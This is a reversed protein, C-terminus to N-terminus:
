ADTVFQARLGRLSADFQDGLWGDFFLGAWKTRLGKLAGKQTWTVLVSDEEMPVFRLTGRSVQSGDPLSLVYVLEEGDKAEVLELRGHGVQEGEWQAVQGLGAAGEVLWTAAADNSRGWASWEQWRALDAVEAYVESASAEIRLSREVTYDSPLFVSVLLFVVLACTLAIGISKM